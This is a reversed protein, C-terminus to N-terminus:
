HRSLIHPWQARRPVLKDTDNNSDWIQMLMQMGDPVGFPVGFPDWIPDLVLSGLHTGFPVGGQALAPRPGKPGKPGLWTQPYPYQPGIPGMQPGKNQIMNPDWTPDMQPENKGM